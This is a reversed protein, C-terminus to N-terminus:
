EKNGVDRTGGMSDVIDSFQKNGSQYIAAIINDTMPFDDPNTSVSNSAFFKFIDAPKYHFLKEIVVDEWGDKLNHDYFFKYSPDRKAGHRKETEEIRVLLKEVIIDKLDGYTNYSKNQSLVPADMGSIKEIVQTLVEAAVEMDHTEMLEAAGSLCAIAILTQQKSKEATKVNLNKEMESAWDCTYKMNKDKNM